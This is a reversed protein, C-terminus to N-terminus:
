RLKKIIDHFDIMEYGSVEHTDLKDLILKTLTEMESETLDITPM